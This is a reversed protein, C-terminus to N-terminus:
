AHTTEDLIRNKVKKFLANFRKQECALNNERLHKLGSTASTINHQEIQKQIFSELFDNDKQERKPVQYTDLHQLQKQIFLNLKKRNLTLNNKLIQESLWYLARQNISSLTGKELVNFKSDISLRKDKIKPPLDSKSTSIIFLNDQYIDILDEITKQTATLYENSLAIFVKANKDLSSLDFRNVLDWWKQSINYSDEIQSISDLHNKSFTCSYPTILKQSNILGYGASMILLETDYKKHFVSLAKKVSSWQVGAYLDIAKHTNNDIVKSWKVHFQDLSTFQKSYSLLQTKQKPQISKKSTCSTIIYVKQM